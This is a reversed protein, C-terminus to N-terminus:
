SASWAAVRAEAQSRRRRRQSDPVVGVLVQTIPHLQVRRRSVVVPEWGSSTGFEDFIEGVFKGCVDPVQTTYVGGAGMCNVHLPPLYLRGRGSAGRHDTQLTVATAVEYPLSVPTGSGTPQAGVPYAFWQTDFAQELNGGTGDASTGTTQTKVVIGVETFKVSSSFDGLMTNSGFHGTALASQVVGALDEAAALCEAEDPDPDAGPQGWNMGFQFQEVGGLTGRITSAVWRMVDVKGEEYIVPWQGAAGVFGAIPGTFEAGFRALLQAITSSTDVAIRALDTVYWDGEDDPDTTHGHVVVWREPESLPV